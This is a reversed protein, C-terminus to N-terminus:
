LKWIEGQNGGSGCIINYLINAAAFGVPEPASASEPGGVQRETYVCQNGLSQYRDTNRTALQVM